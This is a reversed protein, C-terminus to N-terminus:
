LSSSINYPLKETTNIIKAPNGAVVSHAPVNKTVVSGAGVIAWKGLRVGPLITSNAGIISNMEVYCGKLEKKADPSNPYKANTFVVNPGIWSEDELITYEPIFALTHIRVRSGIIVHHEVVSSTGISVNDGIKNLERINVKNGAQFNDGITNGAYIVTHSRILANNGIVTSLEGSQYGRPPAGIIAFDEVICNDGLTVNPHIESTNSIM